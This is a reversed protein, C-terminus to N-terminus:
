TLQRAQVAAKMEIMHYYGFVFLQLMNAALSGGAEKCLRFFLAVELTHVAALVVLAWGAVTAATTGAQTIVLGALVAYIVLCGIKGASM